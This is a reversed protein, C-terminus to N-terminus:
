DALRYFRISKVEVTRNKVTVTKGGQRWKWNQEILTVTNDKNVEKVIAWHTTSRNTNCAAIDGIMPETVITIKEGGYCKPTKNYFLNYISVDYVDKYYKKVYAACSYIQSSGDSSGQRYIADVGNLTDVLFNDGTITITEQVSAYAVPTLLNVFLLMIIINAGIARRIKIM